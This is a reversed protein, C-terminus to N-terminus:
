LKDGVVLDYYLGKKAMLADHKGSEVIRGENLVVIKDATTINKLNHTTILITHNSRLSEITDMVFRESDADLASTAEDFVLIPSGKILARAIAVRQKQGGSILAGKEGCPTNYQEDLEEIFDHAFAQKAATVIEADDVDGKRGMAINEKITMDFLKCSQDVYSFNKRWATISVAESSTGGLTMGLHEREYFGVIVRLITSKGSGSPGVFAVMEGININLDIDLLTDQEANQYRFNLAKIRLTTGDFEMSGKDESVPVSDIISFIRKAAELPPQMDALAKGINGMHNSIGEFLPLALLLAPFDLQGTAVLWGGFGFTTVLALWGQISTFLRQWMSIFARRFDLIKIENMKKSASALAKDQQNFVRIPIAGQFINSMEKVAEANAVLRDKGIKGSSKVFRSQTFYAFLGLGIAALGMRWDIIFLAVSSFVGTIIPTLFSFLASGYIDSANDADTNIAAIGEGSHSSQSAELGRKMFSRFLKQKLDMQASLRASSYLYRGLGVLSLLVVLAGLAIMTGTVIEKISGAIAGAIINSGTLGIVFSFAFSQSNSLVAGISYLLMYPRIFSFMKKFYIM